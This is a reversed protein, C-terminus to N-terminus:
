HTRWCVAIAAMTSIMTVCMVWTICIFGLRRTEQNSEVIYRVLNEKQMDDM